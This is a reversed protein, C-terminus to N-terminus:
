KSPPLIAEEGLVVPWMVPSYSYVHCCSLTLATTPLTYKWFFLNPNKVKKLFIKFILGLPKYQCRGEYCRSNQQWSKRAQYQKVVVFEKNLSCKELLGYRNQIIYGQCSSWCATSELRTWAWEKAERLVDCDGYYTQVVGVKAQEGVATCGPITRFQLKLDAFHFAEALM